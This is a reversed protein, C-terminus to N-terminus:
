LGLCKLELHVEHSQRKAKNWNTKERGGCRKANEELLMSDRRQHLLKQVAGFQM